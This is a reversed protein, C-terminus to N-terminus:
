VYISAVVKALSCVWSRLLTWIGKVGFVTLTSFSQIIQEHAGSPTQYCSLLSPYGNVANDCPSPAVVKAQSVKRVQLQLCFMGHYIHLSIVISSDLAADRFITSEPVRM